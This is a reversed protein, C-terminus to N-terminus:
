PIRCPSTPDSEHRIEDVPELRDAGMFLSNPANFVLGAVDGVCKYGHVVGPPVIVAMEMGGGALFIMRNGYTLSDKRLDWLYIRFMSSTFAFYDTQDRHEHPGRTVGPYTLSLYAMVPWVEQGLNDMRFLEILYGREDKRRILPRQVVGAILADKFDKFDM